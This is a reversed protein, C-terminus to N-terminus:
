YFLKKITTVPFQNNRQSFVELNERPLLFPYDRHSSQVLFTQRKETKIDPLSNVIQSVQFSFISGDTSTVELFFAPRELHQEIAKQLEESAKDIIFISRFSLLQTLYNSVAQTDLQRDSSDQWVENEKRLSLHPNSFSADRSIRLSAISELPLSFVRTDIFNVLDLSELPSSLADVHYIQEGKMFKVYTSNDVPNVLGLLLEKQNLDQTLFSVRIQPNDLSYNSRNIPDEDYIRRIRIDGLTQLIRELPQPNALVSRPETMRWTGDEPSREFTFTGLRNQLTLSRLEKLETEDFLLRFRSLEQNTVIPAQFFVSFLGGILILLCFLGLM